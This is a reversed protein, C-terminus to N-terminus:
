RRCEHLWGYFHINFALNCLENEKEYNLGGIM